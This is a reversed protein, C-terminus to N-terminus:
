ATAVPEELAQLRESFQAASSLRHAPDAALCDRLLAALGPEVGALSLDKGPKGGIVVEHLCIGLAYLDTQVSQLGPQLEPARYGAVGASKKTGFDTLKVFGSKSLLIRDLTLDRHLIGRTHAEHLGKAADVLLRKANAIPLVGLENVMQQVSKGDLMEGIVYLGEPQDLVAYIEAINPHSLAALTRAEELFAARGDVGDAVDGLALKKIAVTRNLSHDKAEWVQGFTKREIVHLLEYKGDLRAPTEPTGAAAAAAAMPNAFEEQMSKLSPSSRLVRISAGLGGLMLLGPVLMWWNSGTAPAEEQPLRAVANMLANTDTANPDFVRKGQRALMYHREYTKDIKSARRLNELVCERDQNQECLFAKTALASAIYRDGTALRKAMDASAIADSIRGQKQQAMAQLTLAESRTNRTRARREALKAYREAEEYRGLGALAKAKALYGLASRGDARIAAEAQRLAARHDGMKHLSEASQLFRLGAASIVDSRNPDNRDHRGRIQVVNVGAGGAGLTRSRIQRQSGAYNKASVKEVGWTKNLRSGSLKAHAFSADIPASQSGHSRGRGITPAGESYDALLTGSQFVATGMPVPEPEADETDEETDGVPVDNDGPLTEPPKVIIRDEEPNASGEAGNVPDAVAAAAEGANVEATGTGPGTAPPDADHQDSSPRGPSNSNSSSNGNGKSDGKNSGKGIGSSGGKSGGWCWFLFCHRSSGSSSSSNSSPSPPSQGKGSSGKGSDSNGGRHGWGADSSSPNAMFLSLM